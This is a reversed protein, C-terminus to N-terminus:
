SPLFFFSVTPTEGGLLRGMRKICCHFGSLYIKSLANIQFRKCVTNCSRLHTNYHVYSYLTVDSLIVRLIKRYNIRRYVTAFGVDYHFTVAWNNVDPKVNCLTNGMLVIYYVKFYSFTFFHMLIPAGPRSIKMQPTFTAENYFSSHSRLVWSKDKDGFSLKSYM